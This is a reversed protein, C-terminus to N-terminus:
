EEEGLAKVEPTALADACIRVIERAITQAALKELGPDVLHQIQQMREVLRRATAKAAEARVLAEQRYDWAMREVDAALADREALLARVLSPTCHYSLTRSYIEPAQKAKEALERLEELDEPTLATM